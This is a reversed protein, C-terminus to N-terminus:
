CRPPCSVIRFCETSVILDGNIRLPNYHCLYADYRVTLIDDGTQDRRWLLNGGGPWSVKQSERGLSLFLEESRNSRLDLIYPAGGVAEPGRMALYEGSQSLVINDEVRVLQAVAEQAKAVIPLFVTSDASAAGVTLGVLFVVVM